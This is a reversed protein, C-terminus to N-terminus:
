LDKQELLYDAEAGAGISPGGRNPIARAAQRMEEVVEARPRRNGWRTLQDAHNGDPSYCLHRALHRMTDEALERAEASDAVIVAAALGISRVVRMHTHTEIVDATDRLVRAILTM